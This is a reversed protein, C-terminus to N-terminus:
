ESGAGRSESLRKKRASEQDLRRLLQRLSVGAVVFGLCAGMVTLVPSCDYKRDLWYGGLAMLGLSMAGSVVEHAARYAQAMQAIRNGRRYRENKGSNSM